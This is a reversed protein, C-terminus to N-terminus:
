TEDQLTDVVAVPFAGSHYILPLRVFDAVASM